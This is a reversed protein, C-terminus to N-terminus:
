NLSPSLKNNDGILKKRLTLGILVGATMWLYNVTYVAGSVQAAVLHQVFLVCVWGYVPMARYVCAAKFFLTALLVFLLAGGLVGTGMLAELIINHPYGGFQSEEIRSGLIPSSIFDGLGAALRQLREPTSGGTILSAEVMRSYTPIGFSNEAIYALPVFLSALTVLTWLVFRRTAGQALVVMFALCVVVSLLPGKSNAAILLGGGLCIALVAFLRWAWIQKASGGGQLTHWFTLLFISGGLHGMSIPNLASLHFRGYFDNASRRGEEPTATGLLLALLGAVLLLGLLWKAAQRSEIPTPSWSVMAMMPLFCSGVVWSAYYWWSYMMDYHPYISDYLIRLSYLLWFVVFGVALLSSQSRLRSVNSVLLWMSAVAILARFSISYPTSVVGAFQTLGALLEYGSMGFALVLLYITRNNVSIM